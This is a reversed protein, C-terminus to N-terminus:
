GDNERRYSANKQVEQKVDELALLIARQKHGSVLQLLEKKLFERQQTEENVAQATDKKQFM